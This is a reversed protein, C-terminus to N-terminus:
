SWVARFSRNQEVRRSQSRTAQDEGYQMRHWVDDGCILRTWLSSIHLRLPGYMDMRLLQVNKQAELLQTRLQAVSASSQENTIRTFAELQRM